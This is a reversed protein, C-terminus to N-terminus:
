GKKNDVGIELNWHQIDSLPVQKSLEILDPRTLFIPREKECSWFPFKRTRELLEKFDGRLNELVQRYGEPAERLLQDYKQNFVKEEEANM